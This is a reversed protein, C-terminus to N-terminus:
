HSQPDSSSAPTGNVSGEGMSGPQTVGTAANGTTNQGGGTTGDGVSLAGPAASAPVTQGTNADYATGSGSAAQQNDSASHRTCGVMIAATAAAIALTTTLLPTATRAAM